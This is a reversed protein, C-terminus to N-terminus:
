KADSKTIEAKYLEKMKNQYEVDKRLFMELGEEPSPTYAPSVKDPYVLYQLWWCIFFIEKISIM